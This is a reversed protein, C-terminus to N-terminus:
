GKAKATILMVHIEYKEVLKKIWLKSRLVLVLGPFDQHANLLSFSNQFEM